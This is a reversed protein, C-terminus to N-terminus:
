EALRFSYRTPTYTSVQTKRGRASANPLTVTKNPYDISGADTGFGGAGDDQLSANELTYGYTANNASSRYTLPLEVSVTGALPADALPLVINDSGDLAVNSFTEVTEAGAGTGYHYDFTFATGGLPLTTPYFEVTNAAAKFKGSGYGTLNGNSDCTLSRQSGDNWSITLTNPIVGAHTFVKTVKLPGPTLNSRNIFDASNGWSFLIESDADPLAALSVSVSGTVYNVTGSGIGSETGLLGGAGNDNLEYWQNLARFMVKLSKPKPAPSINIAWVYGRNAATVPISATDALRAPAAAPRFTVTKTGTYTPATSGFALTGDAYNITGVSTEGVKLTGGSDVLTGGTVPISLTGPLCPSGLYIVTNAQFNSGVSFSVTGGASDIVASANGGANNDVLAVESQSSPVVQSYVSDVQVTLDTNGAAMALPRASYYRAANATVTKYLKAAPSITDYRNIESGVFDDNLVDSLEITLIRRKFTGQDDTFEQVAHTMRVIRIYQSTTSTQILLVDGIGPLPASENQFIAIARSGQYQTGWLFGSYIPGQARYNEVRSQAAPRRDFWDDTNFLNVGIKGDGPLKSIIVHSGYYKDTNQTYVGPFIKRMHVAGYVRDLTSIDDFINNSQGDVIVNGTIAGGGEPVDSMTDSKFLKIDGALITM